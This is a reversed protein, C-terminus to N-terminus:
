KYTERFFILSLLTFKSGCKTGPAVKKGCSRAVFGVKEMDILDEIENSVLKCVCKVNAKKVVACCAPSLDVEPGSKKVYELDITISQILIEISSVGQMQFPEQIVNTDRLTEADNEM